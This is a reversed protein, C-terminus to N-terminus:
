ELFTSRKRERRAKRERERERQKNRERGAGTGGKLDMSVTNLTDCLTELGELLSWEM